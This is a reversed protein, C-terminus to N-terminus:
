PKRTQDATAAIARVSGPERAAASMEKAAFLLECARDYRERTADHPRVAYRPTADTAQSMPPLM